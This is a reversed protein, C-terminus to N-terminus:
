TRVASSQAAPGTRKGLWSRPAPCGCNMWVSRSERFGGAVPKVEKVKEVHYGLIDGGGNYLPPKWAVIVFDKGTDVIWPTPPGPPVTHTFLDLYFTEVHSSDEYDAIEYPPM